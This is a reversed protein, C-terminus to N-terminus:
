HQDLPYYSRLEVKLKGKRAKNHLFIIENNENYFDSSDKLNIVGKTLPFIIIGGNPKSVDERIFISASDDIIGNVKLSIKNGRLIKVKITTDKECNNIEFNIHTNKKNCGSLSLLLIGFLFIIVNIRKNLNNKLKQTQM